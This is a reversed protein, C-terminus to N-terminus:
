RFQRHRLRAGLELLLVQRPQGRMRAFPRIPEIKEGESNFGNRLSEVPSFWLGAGINAASTSTAATGTTQTSYNMVTAIRLSRSATCSRSM